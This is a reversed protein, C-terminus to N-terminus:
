IPCGNTSISDIEFSVIAIRPVSGICDAMRFFM